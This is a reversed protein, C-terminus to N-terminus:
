LKCPKTKQYSNELPYETAIGPKVNIKNFVQQSNKILIVERSFGNMAQIGRQSPKCFERQFIYHM